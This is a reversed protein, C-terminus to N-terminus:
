LKKKEDGLESIIFDVKHGFRRLLAEEVVSKREIVIAKSASGGAFGVEIRKDTFNIPVADSLPGGLTPKM